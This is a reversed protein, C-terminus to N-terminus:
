EQTNRKPKHRARRAQAVIGGRRLPSLDNFDIIRGQLHVPENFEPGLPELHEAPVPFDALGFILQPRLALYVFFELRAICREHNRASLRKNGAIM